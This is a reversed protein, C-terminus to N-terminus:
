TTSSTATEFAVVARDLHASAHPDFDRDIVTEAAVLRVKQILKRLLRVRRHIDPSLIRM